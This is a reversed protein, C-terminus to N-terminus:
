KVEEITEPKASTKKAAEKKAPSQKKAPVPKSTAKPEPQKTVAEKKQPQEKTTGDTAQDAPDLLTAKIIYDLKPFNEKLYKNGQNQIAGQDPTQGYEANIADVVDMGSIVKGFPTFGQPNLSATNDAFNFFLQTTRSNAGSTAFTITGRSNNQKQPDDQLVRTRWKAQLEPDGNIGWQVIFGPVNRFFRCEEFFGTTVLEKFRAAGLPAWDSYVEIVVEGNSLEFKVQYTEGPEVNLLEGKDASHEPAEVTPSKAEPESPKSRICGTVVLVSFMLAFVSLQSMLRISSM